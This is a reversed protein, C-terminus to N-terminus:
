RGSRAVSYRVDMSHHRVGPSPYPHPRADRFVMTIWLGAVEVAIRATLLARLRREIDISDIETRAWWDWQVIMDDTNEDLPNTAITYGISPVRPGEKVDAIAYTHSGGLLADLAADGDLRAVLADMVQPWRM